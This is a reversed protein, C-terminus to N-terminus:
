FDSVKNIKRWFIKKQQSFTPIEQILYFMALKPRSLRLLRPTTEYESDGISDGLGLVRFETLVCEGSISVFAFVGFVDRFNVRFAEWSRSLKEGFFNRVLLVGLEFAKSLM